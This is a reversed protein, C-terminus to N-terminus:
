RLHPGGFEAAPFEDFEICDGVMIQNLPLAPKAAIRSAAAPKAKPSKQVQPDITKIAM